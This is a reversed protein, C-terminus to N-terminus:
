LRAAGLAERPSMSYRWGPKTPPSRIPWGLGRTDHLHISVPINPVAARINAVLRRVQRPNAMGTTDALNLDNAGTEALHGAMEIM